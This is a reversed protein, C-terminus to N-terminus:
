ACVVLAVFTVCLFFLLFMHNIMITSLYHYISVHHNIM